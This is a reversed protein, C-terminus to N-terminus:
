VLGKRCYYKIEDNKFIYGDMWWFDEDQGPLHQNYNIVLQKLIVDAPVLVEEVSNGLLALEIEGFLSGYLVFHIFARYQQEKPIFKAFDYFYTQLPSNIFGRIGPYIENKEKGRLSEWRNSEFEM